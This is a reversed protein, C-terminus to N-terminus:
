DAHFQELRIKIQNLSEPEIVLLSDDGVVSLSGDANETVIISGKDTTIQICVKDFRHRFDDGAATLSLIKM